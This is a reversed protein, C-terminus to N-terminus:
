NNTLLLILSNIFNKYSEKNTWQEEKAIYDVVCCAYIAHKALKEFKKGRMKYQIDPNPIIGPNGDEM